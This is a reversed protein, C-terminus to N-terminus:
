MPLGSLLKLLCLNNQMLDRFSRMAVQHISLIKFLAQAFTVNISAKVQGDGDPEASDASSASSPVALLTESYVMLARTLYAQMLEFDTAKSLVIEFWYLFKALLQLGEADEADEQSIFQHDRCLARMELDIAPPSLTKLYELLMIAVQEDEEQAGPDKKTSSSAASLKSLYIAM